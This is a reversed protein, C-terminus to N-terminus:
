RRSPRMWITSAEIAVRGAIDRAMSAVPTDEDVVVLRRTRRVSELIAEEDLPALTLVDLVEASIGDAALSEAAELCVHTM